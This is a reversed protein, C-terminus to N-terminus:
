NTAQVSQGDHGRRLVLGPRADTFKGGDVVAVGNVLVYDIGVPYQHPDEFTARDEVTAPDFVVLDAYMGEAVQGRDRLGLRRAPMGTMKHVAEELTLVHRERVYRALVRPFTGYWRPHPHGEGPRVLRGDSAIMTHPYRMIREVDADDLVHYIASAGGRQLADIVLEAG